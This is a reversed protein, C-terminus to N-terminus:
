NRRTSGNLISTSFHGQDNNRGKLMDLAPSPIYSMALTHPNHTLSQTAGCSVGVVTSVM